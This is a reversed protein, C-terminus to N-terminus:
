PQVGAAGPPYASVMVTGAAFAWRSGAPVDSSHPASTSGSVTPKWPARSAASSGSALTRTTPPPMMPRPAASAARRRTPSRTRTSSGRGSRRASAPRSPSRAVAGPSTPSAVNSTTSSHTARGSVKRAATSATTVPPSTTSIPIQSSSIGSGTLWTTHFSVRTIPDYAYEGSSKASTAAQTPRPSTSREGIM